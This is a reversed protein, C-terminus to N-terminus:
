RCTIEMRRAFYEVSTAKDPHFTLNFTWKENPEIHSLSLEGTFTENGASIDVYSFFFKKQILNEEPYDTETFLSSSLDIIISLEKKEPYERSDLQLEIDLKSQDTKGFNLLCLGDKVNKSRLTGLEFELKRNTSFYRNLSKWFEDTFVKESKGALLYISQLFGNLREVVQPRLKEELSPLWNERLEYLKIWERRIKKSFRLGIVQKSVEKSSDSSDSHDIAYHHGNVSNYIDNHGHHNDQNGSLANLLVIRNPKSGMVYKSQIENPVKSSTDALMYTLIVRQGDIQRLVKAPVVNLKLLKDIEYAAIENEINTPIPSNSKWDPSKGYAIHLHKEGPSRILYLKGPSQGKLNMLSKDGSDVIEGSKLMNELCKREKEAKKTQDNSYALWVAYQWRANTKYLGFLSQIASDSFYKHEIEFQDSLMVEREWIKLRLPPHGQSLNVKFQGKLPPSVCLIMVFILIKVM